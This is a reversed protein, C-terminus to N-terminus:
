RGYTYLCQLMIREGKKTFGGRHIGNSNFVILKSDKNNKIQLEKSMCKQLFLKCISNSHGFEADFDFSSPLLNVLKEKYVNFKDNAKRIIMEERTAWNHSGSVYRFPGNQLDVESIFILTKLYPYIKTDIHLYSTENEPLGNLKIKGYKAETTIPDNIQLFIKDLKIKSKEFFFGIKYIKHLRHIEDVIEYLDLNTKKDLLINTDSFVRKKPEIKDRHKKLLTLNSQILNKIKKHYSNNVKFTVVGKSILKLIPFNLILM